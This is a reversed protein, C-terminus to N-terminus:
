RVAITVVPASTNGVQLVVPVADGTQIGAPIQVNVQMLGAVEGPAGGAYLVQAAQGGITVTVPLIPHTQTGTVPKGDMGAPSTQGEGTAFLVIEDGIHTPTATRNLTNDQNVVAAQGKGSSDATFVAPATSVIPVSVPASTEGLYTVTVTATNGAIEYPVIAATQTTWSYLLPAAIGNITVTTEALQTGYSGDAAPTAKVLGGPGIGSGYLTVIEGPAIAGAANSAANVVTFSLPPQLLRVANWLDAAYIAGSSALALGQPSLGAGVAPGGDGVYITGDANGAVTSIIGAPTVKRIYQVDSVYLNGASDVAVGNAGQMKASTALGGDGAGSGCTSGAVTTITGASSVERVRCNENDAIYLNGASDVTVAGPYHLTASTAPGGDGTIGPSGTGAVTSITGSTSIKRVRNNNQDAVYLNGSNDLAIGTPGVFGALLAPGGDGSYSRVTGGALSHIVGDPTVRWIRANDFDAFILNGAPDIAIGAPQGLASAAAMQGDFAKGYQGNGAVTKITGDTSIKRVRFNKSDAVYVNGTGDLAVSYPINLQAATAPGGDGSYSALGNGAVTNIMRDTTVSRLRYNLSDAVLINGSIDVAVGTAVFFRASTAPGGDGSFGAGAIISGAVGVIIGDASIKRIQSDDALYLNDSSDTALGYVGMLTAKVAPGGNGTEGLQGTGAITSITGDAAVKRVRSDSVSEVSAFYVNGKSDLCVAPISTAALAAQLAPGGDGTNGAVGNGAVTTIVGATSVKRIRFNGSDAIYLNSATDFAVGRPNNISAQSAAGGDGSYTAAGTGVVTTIIGTASVRRIRNNYYDAIYLNGSSDAALGMPNNLQANVAPGGDGSFGPRDNGAVRTLVGTKDLKFVTHFSSFYANGATDFTVQFPQVSANTAVM